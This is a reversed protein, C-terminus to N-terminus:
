AFEIKQYFDCVNKHPRGPFNCLFITNMSHEQYSENPFYEDIFFDDSGNQDIRFLNKM